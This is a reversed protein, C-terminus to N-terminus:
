KAFEEQMFQNARIITDAIDGDLRYTQGKIQDPIRYLKKNLPVYMAKPNNATMEQFPTKVFQPTTYGVGVDLFLIAQGQHQALFDEYRAKQAFFNPSEVMGKGAKRKNVEMVAGCKPCHPILDYPIEMNEQQDVMQRILDNDRYTEQHCMQSCQM